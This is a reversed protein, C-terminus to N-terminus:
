HKFKSIIIATGQQKARYKANAYSLISNPNYYFKKQKGWRVFYGNKDKGQNVPM